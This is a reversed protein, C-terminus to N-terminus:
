SGTASIFGSRTSPRQTRCRILRFVAPATAASPCMPADPPTLSFGGRGGGHQTSPLYYRRVNEPLPIDADAATGVWEPTLKLGWVEAAGFHEIIKPCTNTANCRDLIGRKPLGRVPDPWATWWQPGENGPEYLKQVGDPMAFRSNMAIRRGAIIPWAGDYVKRNAEDQTFGLHLLARLFNGSQSTGRSIVWSVQGGLPNPTGEDDSTANRFFSAVDRFAAFGIGLVYPDRATFVVQYLLKADFGNKLCIQTPDPTGPFPNDASCKAWAWDGSPITATTGIAGEITESTHTTLTAKSTDLSMPEYPVPNQHVIMPSSNMGSANMIRGMVLGTIPSGDPNRAVPVIAYDNAKGPATNGSNDGQWGSSLGIDGFNRENIGLTVRGGRNPVDQWMLHSSRLMDIPKVLFFTAVYEVKGDANKPALHIDTIITNRPDNPDLEGFARGALTEYPGADGFPRGDFAPSVRQDIVIKKVRAEVAPTATLLAIAVALNVSPWRGLSRAVHLSM